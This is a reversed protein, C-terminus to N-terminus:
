DELQQPGDSRNGQPRRVPLQEEQLQARRHGQCHQARSDAPKDTSRLWIIHFIISVSNIYDIIAQADSDSVTSSANADDTASKIDKELQSEANQVPLANFLGGNYANIKSTLDTTDSNITKLDAQVTAADRRVVAAAATTALLVINRIAVM